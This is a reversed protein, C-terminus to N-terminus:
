DNLSLVLNENNKLVYNEYDPIPQCNDTSEAFLSASQTKCLKASSYQIGWVKLFEGFTFDRQTNSEVHIVGTDDHTHIPAISLPSYKDLSHDKYLDDEIGINAPLPKSAGNIFLELRVHDHQVLAQDAPKPMMSPLIFMFFAMVVVGIAGLLMGKRYSQIYKESKAKESKM